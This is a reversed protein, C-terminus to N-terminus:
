LARFLHAITTLGLYLELDSAGSNSMVQLPQNHKAHIFDRDYCRSGRPSDAWFGSKRGFCPCFELGFPLVQFGSPQFLALPGESSKGSPALMSHAPPVYGAEGAGVGFRLALLHVFSQAAGVAMTLLSWISLASVVMAKRRGPVALRALPFALIVHIVAFALGSLMGLQFDSLSFEAGIQNLTISLIHRDLHDLAFAASLFALLAVRRNQHMM